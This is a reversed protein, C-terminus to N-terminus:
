KISIWLGVKKYHSGYFIASLLSFLIISTLLFPQGYIESWNGKVFSVPNHLKFAIIGFLIGMLIENFSMITSLFIKKYVVGRPDDRIFDILIRMIGHLIFYLCVLLGDFTVWYTLMYLFIFLMLSALAAYLQVPHLRLGSLHPHTRIIKANANYYSISFKNNTPKGWCCGYSYCGIRGIAESIAAALV